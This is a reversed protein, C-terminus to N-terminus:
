GTVEFWVTVCGAAGTFSGCADALGHVVMLGRGSEAWKGRQAPIMPRTRAGGDDQVEVRIREASVLVSVRVGGGPRGSDSHLVANTVIEAVMLDVDGLDFGHVRGALAAVVTERVYRRVDRVGLVGGSGLRETCVEDWVIM